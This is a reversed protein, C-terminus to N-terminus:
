ETVGDFVPNLKLGTFWLTLMAATFTLPTFKVAV